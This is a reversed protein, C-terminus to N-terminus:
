KFLNSYQEGLTELYGEVVQSQYPPRGFYNSFGGGSFDVAQEPFTGKTGGVTTV